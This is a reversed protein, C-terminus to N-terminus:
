VGKVPQQAEHPHSEGAYIKVNTILQRSLRNKPLMGLIALRLAEGGKKKVLDQYSVKSLGGPYGSFRYYFKNEAKKGTVKIKEANIVVVFGKMNVAPSFTVNEKGRVLKAIKSALRGLVEGSADVLIWKEKVEQQKPHVTSQRKKM